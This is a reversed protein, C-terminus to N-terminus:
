QRAGDRQRKRYISPRVMELEPTIGHLTESHSTIIYGGPKLQGLVRKVVDHKTSQDFYIMVNRIFILDFQGISPLKTTLNIQRLEIDQKLRRDIAFNGEQAGVGKLCYKKLLREPISVNDEEPYVGRRAQALMRTSIDSGLVSWRGTGLVDDLVMALTYVEEGSSSAACWIRCQDQYDRKLLETLFQFHAPERFFHTENTTLHDIMVQMEGPYESGSVLKFYQSFSHLGFHQLRKNLRTALMVKKQDSLHIGAREYLLRAFKQFETDNIAPM